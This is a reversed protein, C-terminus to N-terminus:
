LTISSCAASADGNVNCLLADIRLALLHSEESKKERKIPYHILMGLLATTADRNVNCLLAKLRFVSSDVQEVRGSV